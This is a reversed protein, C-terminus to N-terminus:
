IGELPLYNYINNSRFTTFIYVIIDCYIKKYGILVDNGCGPNVILKNDLKLKYNLHM